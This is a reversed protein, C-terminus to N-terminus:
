FNYRIGLQMRWRSYFNDTVYIGPKGNTVPESYTLLLRGQSDFPKGNYSGLGFLNYSQFNVSQQHGWSNSLLNLINQIDLTLEINNTAFVPLRQTIRLDLQNLWPERVYNRPLIKGQYSQLIPNADILAMIQNWIQEPTRLDSGGPAVVVIRKGYDDDRPVYILDNGGTAGDGNYDSIYSLSYPRGTSGSYFIGFSTSVSSSWAITYRLNAVVRHPIDFNSRGVSANNPDVADNFQWQSLAVSNISSNLDESRGYTYSVSGGLGPVISNREVLNLQGSISWQFGANRSRMLIVQTFERAYVSDANNGSYLPRGDLPSVGRLTDGDVIYSLGSRNLNINSYDVQNYFKGYIGELTFSLGDAVKLDTALTSRWVQPLLFNRDTIAIGATNIPSGPYNPNSPNPPSVSLDWKMPQGNQDVIVAQSSNAGLEARYLDVGTNSFQNSLWVAAVRGSFVGTGGRLVISRDGLFDYNFGIRPAPLFSPQPVDSTSRGPFREAFVENYFPTSLFVPIDLRLGGTLRLRESVDWEDMAYFGLQAMWWLARPQETKTLPLNAYSVRYFNATSDAYADVNPYQISSYYDPIFLNNFRSLENHTGFTITHQGTFVTLDNTLAFQTQDLTNAQSNREPGLVVNLGSGVQIRVEPFPNTTLIRDDSTQLVSIRLENSLNSAITNWQVVAQNNISSFTNVRSTLSFTQADRQLNRDQIAYTFNYRFQIKNFDDINWDLRTIVNATNNRINYLNYNGPDYGYQTKSIEIIRDLTAAPVPFNSLANPDNLSVDIPTSRIRVEATAHFLLRDEIIPGGLRGGFQFDLFDPYTRKYVDPSLGVLNEDRGYIFLSGETKNTGGRTILNILGGTFGGQRVDYPSINVRIREIADLSIVNANAQSGATGATGLAFLDNSVAGDIQFNNFRSNVGLISIGSLADSGPSFTQQAYPNIRAFDSISRNITPSYTITAQDIVSSSGAHSRDLLVSSEATVVITEAQIGSQALEINLTTTEGVEVLINVLSAATYGVFSVDVRYVGPRLGRLTYRGDARSHGGYVSGTATHTARITAGNVIPASEYEGVHLERVVGSISGTTVGQSIAIQECPIFLILSVM